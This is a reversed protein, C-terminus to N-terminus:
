EPPACGEESFLISEWGVFESKECASSTGEVEMCGENSGWSEERVDARGGESKWSAGGVDTFPFSGSNIEM